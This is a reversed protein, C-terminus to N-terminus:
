IVKLTFITNLLFTFFMWWVLAAWLADFHISKCKFWLVIFYVIKERSLQDEFFICSNIININKQACIDWCLSTVNISSPHSIINLGAENLIDWKWIWVWDCWPIYIIMSCYLGNEWPRNYWGTLRTYTIIEFLYM